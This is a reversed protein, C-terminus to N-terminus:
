FYHDMHEFYALVQHDLLFPVHSCRHSYFPQHLTGAAFKTAAARGQQEARDHPQYSM